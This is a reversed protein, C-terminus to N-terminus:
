MESLQRELDALEARLEAIRAEIKARREQAEDAIWTYQDEVVLSAPVDKIELVVGDGGIAPYKASGGSGPFRGEAVIVGEGLQVPADRFRRRAVLRGLMWLEQKASDHLGGYGTIRHRVTVTPVSGSGDTGYIALLLDRVHQEDRADFVWIRPTSEWHGGLAPAQAVMEPHFPSTVWIQRQQEYREVKIQQSM